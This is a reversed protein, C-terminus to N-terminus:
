ERLFHKKLFARGSGSKFYKELLYAKYKNNIAIYSLLELPLRDQTAKIEGRRHRQMRERLDHTCGIYTRMDGCKLIYVYHM